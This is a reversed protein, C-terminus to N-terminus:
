NEKHGAWVAAMKKQSHKLWNQLKKKGDLHAWDGLSLELL